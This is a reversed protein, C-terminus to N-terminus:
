GGVQGAEDGGEGGGRWGPPDIDCRRRSGPSALARYAVRLAARRGPSSLVDTSDVWQEISGMMPPLRAVDPHTIGALLGQPVAQDVTRYPRDFFPIVAPNPAPLGRERQLNVLVECAAALADERERWGAATVTADLLPGLRVAVPLSRFVTGRWKAYPAWRRSLAFALATLDGALGASLLRSGFEDGKGAARGMMPMAQCIRQWGAALVYREVDPPYWTLLDRVPALTRTTDTFVPGATVELVSQGTLSLWDLASLGGTPDVGLRSGAFGAVTAVQVKHSVTTDFTVPFRVPFEGFREPLREELM